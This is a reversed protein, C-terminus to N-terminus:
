DLNLSNEIHYLNIIFFIINLLFLIFILIINFYKLPILIIFVM